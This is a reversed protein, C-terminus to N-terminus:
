SKEGDMKVLCHELELSQGTTQLTATAIVVPAESLLSIYSALMTQFVASYHAVLMAGHVFTICVYLCVYMCVHM